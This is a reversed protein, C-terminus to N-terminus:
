DEMKELDNAFQEWVANVKNQRIANYTALEM